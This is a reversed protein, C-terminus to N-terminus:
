RRERRTVKVLMWLFGAVTCPIMLWAPPFFFGAVGWFLLMLVIGCFVIRKDGMASDRGLQM